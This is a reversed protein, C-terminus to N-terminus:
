KSVQEAVDISLTRIGGVRHMLGLDNTELFLLGSIPHTHPVRGGSMEDAVGSVCLVRVVFIRGAPGTPPRGM